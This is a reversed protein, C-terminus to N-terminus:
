FNYVSILRGIVMVFGVGANIIPFFWYVKEIKSDALKVQSLMLIPYIMFLIGLWLNLTAFCVATILYLLACYLLTTVKGFYTAVTQIGGKRDAKIDIVASYAHMAACWCAGGILIEYGPMSGSVQYFGIVGPILYLVNSLSDLVPKTKLRIPELSYFVSLVLWVMWILGLIWSQIGFIVTGFLGSVLIGIKLVSQYKPDLRFEKQGNKKPNVLDIERDSLDNVGYLILNAPLLFYILSLWFWGQGFNFNDIAYVVGVLYTGALYFWFRPRSVSILYEIMKSADSETQRSFKGKAQEGM